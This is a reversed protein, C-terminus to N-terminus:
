NNYIARFNKPSTVGGPGETARSFSRGKGINGKNTTTQAQPHLGINQNLTNAQLSPIFSQKKVSVQNQQMPSTAGHNVSGPNM